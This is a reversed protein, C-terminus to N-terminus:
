SLAHRLHIYPLVCQQKCWAEPFLLFSVEGFSPGFSDIPSEGFFLARKRNRLVPIQSHRLAFHVVLTLGHVPLPWACSCSADFYYLDM